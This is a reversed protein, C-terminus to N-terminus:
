HAASPRVQFIGVAQHLVPFEPQDVGVDARVLVAVDEVVLRETSTLQQNVSVFQILQDALGLLLSQRQDGRPQVEPVASHLHLHCQGLALLVQSLRSVSRRLVASLSALSASRACGSSSFLCDAAALRWGGTKLPHLMVEPTSPLHGKSKDDRASCRRQQAAYDLSRRNAALPMAASSGAPRETRFSARPRSSLRIKFLSDLKSCLFFAMMFVVRFEAAGECISVSHRTTATRSEDSFVFPSGFYVWGAAGSQRCPMEAAAASRMAEPSTVPLISSVVSRCLGCPSFALRKSSIPPPLAM